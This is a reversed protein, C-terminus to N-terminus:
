RIECYGYNCAPRAGPCDSDVQCVACEPPLPGTKSEFYCGCQHGPYPSLPGVETDRQVLMACTPVLSAAIYADLVSTTDSATVATLFEAAAPTRNRSSFFHLPGWIPYHGDRVNRKDATHASSDPLYACTQGSAKFALAKLKMRNTDYYDVSIIGIAQQAQVPDNILTLTQAMNLASGQDIGWFRDASVRIARGIMQQTGTGANRVFYLDPKTWPSAGGDNGGMGFVERAAEESIATEMSEDPVVFAMAQVPGISDTVADTPDFMCTTSFVDSEGIDVQVGADGVLCPVGKSGDGAFYQAYKTGSSPDRIMRDSMSSSFVSKVGTCSSTTLFIPTPGTGTGTVDTGHIVLRALQQLLPPFNSSGSIYVVESRGNAPDLCTPMAAGGEGSSPQSIPPAADPPAILAGADNANGCLGLRACNDFGLCQATGCQNLFDAAGQPTGYFCNSPGLGSEECTGNRCFPHSGFKACDVDSQCQTASRDLLLTCAASGLVLGMAAACAWRVLVMAEISTRRM